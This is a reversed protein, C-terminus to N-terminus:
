RYSIRNDSLNWEVVDGDGLLFTPSQLPTRGALRGQLFYEGNAVDRIEFRSGGATAVSGLRESGRTRSSLFVVMGVYESVFNDIVVTATPETGPFPSGPRATTGCGTLVVVIGLILGWRRPRGPRETIRTGM